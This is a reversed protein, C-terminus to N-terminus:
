KLKAVAGVAVIAAVALYIFRKSGETKTEDAIALTSALAKEFSKQSASANREVTGLSDRSFRFAEEIAGGDLFTNGSGRVAYVDGSESQGGLNSNDQSADIDYNTINTTKKKSKSDLVGM